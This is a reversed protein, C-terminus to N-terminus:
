QVDFEVINSFPGNIGDIFTTIAFYYTSESGLQDATYETDATGTLWDLADPNTGVWVNYWPVDPLANWSLKIQRDGPIGTLSVASDSTTDNPNTENSLGVSDPESQLDIPIDPVAQFTESQTIVQAGLTVYNDRYLNQQTDLDEYGYWTNWYVWRPQTVRLTALDPMQGNETIAIPRQEGLRLLADYIHQDFNHGLDRYMDVGLVDVFEHGPYYTAPAWEPGRDPAWHNVSFVWILNTLGREETFYRWQHEWLEQFRTSQGWWFWPGNMEHFPRWLVPIGEDRLTALYDAIEDLRKEYEQNLLTGETLMQSINEPDYAAGNTYTRLGTGDLESPEVMHYHLQIISKNQAHEIVADVVSARRALIQDRLVLDDADDIGDDPEHHFSGFGTSYVAPYRGVQDYVYQERSSPFHPAFENDWFLQEQGSLIQKGSLQYLYNLLDIAGQDAAPNSPLNTLQNDAINSADVTASNPEVSFLANDDTGGCAVSLVIAFIFVTCNPLLSSWPLNSSRIKPTM